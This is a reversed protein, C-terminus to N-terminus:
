QGQYDLKAHQGYLVPSTTKAKEMDDVIIQMTIGTNANTSDMFLPEVVYSVRFPHENVGNKETHTYSSNDAGSASIQSVLKDDNYVNFSSINAGSSASFVLKVDHSAAHENNKKKTCAALTLAVIIALTTSKM